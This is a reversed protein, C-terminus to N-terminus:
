VGHTRLLGAYFFHLFVHLAVHVSQLISVEPYPGSHGARDLHLDLIFADVNHLWLDKVRHVLTQGVERWSLEFPQLIERRHLVIVFVQAWALLFVQGRQEVQEFVADLHVAPVWAHDVQSRRLLRLEEVQVLSVAQVFGGQRGVLLPLEVLQFVQDYVPSGQVRLVWADDIQARVLLFIQEANLLLLVPNLWQGRLFLFAQAVVFFKNGM